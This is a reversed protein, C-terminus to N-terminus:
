RSQGSMALTAVAVKPGASWGRAVQVGSGRGARSGTDRSIAEPRIRRRREAWAKSPTVPSVAGAKETQKIGQQRPKTLWGPRQEGCRGLHVRDQEHVPHLPEGRPDIGQHPVRGLPGDQLGLQARVPEPRADGTARVMQGQVQQRGQLQALEGLSTEQWWSM